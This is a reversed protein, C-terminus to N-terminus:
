KSPRENIEINTGWPDAIFAIAVSQGKVAYPRDLRIAQAELM